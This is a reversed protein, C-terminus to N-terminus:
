GMPVDWGDGGRQDRGGGDEVGKERISVSPLPSAVIQQRDFVNGRISIHVNGANWTLRLSNVPFKARMGREAPKM